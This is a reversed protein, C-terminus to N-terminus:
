ELLMQAVCTVRACDHVPWHQRPSSREPLHWHQLLPSKGLMINGIAVQQVATLPQPPDEGQDFTVQQPPPPAPLVQRELNDQIPRLERHAAERAAWRTQWIITPLEGDRAAAEPDLEAVFTQWGGNVEIYGIWLNRDHTPVVRMHLTAFSTVQWPPNPAAHRAPHVYWVVAACVVLSLGWGVILMARQM